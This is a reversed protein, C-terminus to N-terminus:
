ISHLEVWVDIRSALEQIGSAANQLMIWMQGIRSEICTLLTTQNASTTASARDSVELRSHLNTESLKSLHRRLDIMAFVRIHALFVYLAASTLLMNIFICHAHLEVRFKPLEDKEFAQWRLKSTTDRFINGSGGAQLSREFKETREKYKMICERCQEVCQNATRDLTNLDGSRNFTKFVEEVQSLAHELSSLERTIAQYEASAGRSDDLSKAFSKILLSLTIIDGVSGFTIPM